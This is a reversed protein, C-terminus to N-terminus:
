GGNQIVLLSVLVRFWVSFYVEFDNCCYMLEQVWVSLFLIAALCGVSVLCLLVLVFGGFCRLGRELLFFSFTVDRSFYLVSIQEWQM